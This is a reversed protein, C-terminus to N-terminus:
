AKSTLSLIENFSVISGFSAVTINTSEPTRGLAGRVLTRPLLRRHEEDHHCRRLRGTPFTPAPVTGVQIYDAVGFKTGMWRALFPRTMSSVVYLPATEARLIRRIGRSLSSCRATMTKCRLLIASAGSACFVIEANGRDNPPGAPLRRWRREFTLVVRIMLSSNRFSVVKRLGGFFM